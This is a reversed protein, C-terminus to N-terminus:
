PEKPVRTHTLLDTAAQRALLRVFTRLGAAASDSVGHDANSSIATPFTSAPRHKAVGKSASTVDSAHEPGSRRGVNNPNKTV